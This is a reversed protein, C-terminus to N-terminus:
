LNFRSPFKTILCICSASKKIFPLGFIQLKYAINEAHDEGDHFGALGIM